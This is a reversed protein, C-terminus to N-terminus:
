GMSKSTDLDINKLVQQLSTAKPAPSKPGRFTLVRSREVRKMAITLLQFVEERFGLARSVLGVHLGVHAFAQDADQVLLAAPVLSLGLDIVRELCTQMM